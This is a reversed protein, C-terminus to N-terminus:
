RGKAFQSVEEDTMRNLVYSYMNLVDTDTKTGMLLLMQHIEQGDDYHLLLTYEKVEYAGHEPQDSVTKGFLGYDTFRSDTDFKVVRVRGEKLCDDFSGAYYYGDLKLGEVDAIRFFEWDRGEPRLVGDDISFATTREGFKVSGKGNEYTYSAFRTLSDSEKPLGYLGKELFQGHQRGDEHFVLRQVRMRAPVSQDHLDIGKPGGIWIGVIDNVPKLSPTYKRFALKFNGASKDGKIVIDSLVVEEGRVHYKATIHAGSKGDSFVDFVCTGDERFDYIITATSEAEYGSWLEALNKEDIAAIARPAAFVVLVALLLEFLVLITTKKM